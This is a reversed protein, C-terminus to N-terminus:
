QKTVPRVSLGKDRPSGEVSGSGSGNAMISLCYAMGTIDTFLSSTWYYAFTQYNFLGTENYCGGIPFVISNGNPGTVTFLKDNENWEWKCRRKLEDFEKKTPLRWSGGWNARAADDSLELITKNDVVGMNDRMNYKTYHDEADDSFKYNEPNYRSKPTTEGWAFYDGEDDPSIAGVNCTAWKVTLGLDVWEHGNMTGRTNDAAETQEHQPEPSSVQPEAPQVPITENTRSSETQIPVPTSPQAPAPTQTPAPTPAAPVEEVVVTDVQEEPESVVTGGRQKGTLLLILALTAAALVGLLVWLWTKGRRKEDPQSAQDGSPAPYVTQEEDAEPLPEDLLSLFDAVGQPRDKAEPDMARQIASWTKDSVESPCALREADTLDAEPRPVAGFVLYYLASGLSYVESEPSSTAVEGMLVAEGNRRLLINEPKVALQLHGKEQAYSLASGIERIYKLAQREALPGKEQVLSSLSGGAIYEMVCYAGGNEEFVDYIKVIHPHEYAAILRAERLFGERFPSAQDVEKIAVKRGLAVQEALYTIGLGVQGLVELIKYRGKQLLFGKQLSQAM